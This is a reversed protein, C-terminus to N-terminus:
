RTPVSELIRGHTTRVLTKRKKDKGEEQVKKKFRIGTVTEDSGENLKVIQEKRTGRGEVRRVKKGEGM